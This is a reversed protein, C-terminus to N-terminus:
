LGYFGDKKRKERLNKAVIRIKMRKEDSEIDTAKQMVKTGCKKCYKAGEPIPNGCKRCFM